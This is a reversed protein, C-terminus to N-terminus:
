KAVPVIYFGRPEVCVPASDFLTIACPSRGTFLNGMMLRMEYALADSGECGPQPAAAGPPVFGEPRPTGLTLTVRSALEGTLLWAASAGLLNWMTQVTHGRLVAFEPVPSPNVTYPVLGVTSASLAYIFDNAGGQPSPYNLQIQWTTVEPDNLCPVDYAFTSCFKPEGFLERGAKVAFPNDAAVSLRLHGLTKTQDEGALWEEFSMAPVDPLRTKPFAVVNLEVENCTGLFAASHQTYRQFDLMAIASGDTFV